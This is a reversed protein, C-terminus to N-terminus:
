SYYHFKLIKNGTPSVIISNRRIDFKMGDMHMSNHKVLSFYPVRKRKLMPWKVIQIKSFCGHRWLWSRGNSCSNCCSHSNWRISLTSHCKRQCPVARFDLERPSLNIVPRHYIVQIHFNITELNYMILSIQNAPTVSFEITSISISSCM